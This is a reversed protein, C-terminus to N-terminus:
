LLPLLPENLCFKHPFPVPVPVLNPWQINHWVKVSCSIHSSLNTRYKPMTDTGTGTRTRTRYGCLNQRFSGNRVSSFVNWTFLGKSHNFMKWCIIIKKRTDTRKSPGKKSKPGVLYKVILVRILAIWVSRFRSRFRYLPWGAWTCISVVTIHM